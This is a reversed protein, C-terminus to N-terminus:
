LIDGLMLPSFKIDSWLVSPRTENLLKVCLDGVPSAIDGADLSRDVNVEVSARDVREVM